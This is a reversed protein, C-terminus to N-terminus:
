CCAAAACCCHYHRRAHSHTYCSRVRGNSSTVTVGHGNYSHGEEDDSVGDLGEEDEEDVPALTNSEKLSGSTNSSNDDDDDDQDEM